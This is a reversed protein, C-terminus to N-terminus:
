AAVLDFMKQNIRVHESISALPRAKRERVNDGVVSKVFVNGRLVNEQVRNFV